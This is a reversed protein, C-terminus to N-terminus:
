RSIESKNASRPEGPIIIALQVFGSQFEDDLSSILGLDLEFSGSSICCKKLLVKPDANSANEAKKESAAKKEAAAKAAAAAKQSAL